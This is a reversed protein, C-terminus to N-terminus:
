KFFQDWLVFTFAAIGFVASIKLAISKDKFLVYFYFPFVFIFSSGIWVAKERDSLDSKLCRVIVTVPLGFFLWLPITFVAVGVIIALLLHM